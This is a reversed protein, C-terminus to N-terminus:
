MGEFLSLLALALLGAAWPLPTFRAIVQPVFRLAIMNAGFGFALGRAAGTFATRLRGRPRADHGGADELLWALGAMALWMAPYLNTPPAALAFIAGLAAAAM